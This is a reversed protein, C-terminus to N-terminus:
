TLLNYKKIKIYFNKEVISKMERSTARLRFLAVPSLFRGICGISDDPLDTFNTKEELAQQIRTTDSIIQPAPVSNSSTRKLLSTESKLFAPHPTKKTNETLM